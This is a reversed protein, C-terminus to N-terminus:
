RLAEKLEEQHKQAQQTTLKDIFEYLKANFTEAMRILNKVEEQNIKFDVYYQKDVRETKAYHIDHSDQGFLEKLLLIAGTHNECKIGTKYLLATLLHYMSYYAMPVANEVQNNELLIKASQLANKSKQLYSEKIDESPATLKLKGEQNLRTLFNIKKM